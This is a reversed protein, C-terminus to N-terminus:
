VIVMDGENVTLGTNDLLYFVDVRSCKFSVVYLQKKPRGTGPGWQAAPNMQRQADMENQERATLEVPPAIYM